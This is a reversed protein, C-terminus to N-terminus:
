KIWLSLSGGDGVGIGTDISSFALHTGSGAEFEPPSCKKSCGCISCWNKVTSPDGCDGICCNYKQKYQYMVDVMERLIQICM